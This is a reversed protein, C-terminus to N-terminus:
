IYICVIYISMGFNIEGGNGAWDGILHNQARPTKKKHKIQIVQRANRTFDQPAAIVLELTAQAPVIHRPSNELGLHWVSGLNSSKKKPDLNESDQYVIDMEVLM